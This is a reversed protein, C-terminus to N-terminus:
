PTESGMPLAVGAHSKLYTAEERALNDSMKLLVRRLTARHAADLAEYEATARTSLAGAVGGLAEYDDGTLARNAGGRRLYALYLESLTFSLLPLAGPMQVVENILDDVLAPPEFTLVREEAPTPAPLQERGHGVRVRCTSCRGRGGCVAAHPIGSVLSVELVSFGRPVSVQRGGPYTLRVKRRQRAAWRLSRLALLAGLAAGFGLIIWREPTALYRHRFAEDAAWPQPRALEAWRAPDSAQIAKLERGASVFGGLALVPLLTALVLLWPQEGVLQIGAAIAAVPGGGPPTERTTLHEPHHPTPPGVVITVAAGSAAALASVLLPEGGVVLDPKSAGGLRRASGGTLVLAAYTLADM